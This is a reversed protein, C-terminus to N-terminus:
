RSNEVSEVVVPINVRRVWRSTNTGGGWWLVSEPDLPPPLAIPHELARFGAFTAKFDTLQRLMAQLEAQTPAIRATYLARVYPRPADFDPAPRPTSHSPNTPDTGALTTIPDNGAPIAPMVRHLLVPRTLLVYTPPVQRLDIPTVARERPLSRALADLRRVVPEPSPATVTIVLRGQEALEVAEEITLLPTLPPFPTFPSSPSSPSSPLPSHPTPLPPLPSPLQLESPAPPASPSPPPTSLSPPTSNAAITRTPPTSSTATDFTPTAAFRPAPKTSTPSFQTLALYGVGVLLAISAAMAFRRFALSEALARLPSPGSPTFTSIPIPAPAQDESERVLEALTRDELQRQVNAALDSPTLAEADRGLASVHAADARLQKVLLALRPAARLAAIVAAEREPPLAREVLDLLDEETLGQPLPPLQDSPLPM